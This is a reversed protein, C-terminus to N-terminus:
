RKRDGVIHQKIEACAIPFGDYYIVSDVHINGYRAPLESAITFDKINSFRNILKQLIEKESM